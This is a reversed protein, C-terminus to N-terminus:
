PWHFQPNIHLTPSDIYPIMRRFDDKSMSFILHGLFRFNSLHFWITITIIESKAM